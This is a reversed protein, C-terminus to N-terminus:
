TSGSSLGPVAASCTRPNAAMPEYVGADASGGAILLLVPGEGRVEYYLSTGPVKLMNSKLLDM